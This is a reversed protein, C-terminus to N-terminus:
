ALKMELTLDSCRALEYVRANATLPDKTNLSLTATKQDFSKDVQKRIWYSSLKGNPKEFAEIAYPIEFGPPNYPFGYKNDEINTTYAKNKIYSIAKMAKVSLWESLLNHNKLTALAYLCFSHYGIEKYGIANHASRRLIPYLLYKLRNSKFHMLHNIKGCRTMSLNGGQLKEQFIDLKETTSQCDKAASAISAAFWLQHNFTHDFDRIEGNPEVSRWAGVNKDFPHLNFLEFARRKYSENSFHRAGELFSEIVWAQGILGNSTDRRNERAKYTAHDRFSTTELYNLCSKAAKEFSSDGSLKAVKIFTIAFHATNRVPTEPDHYPGNHGPLAHGHKEIQPLAKAAIEILLEKGSTIPFPKTSNTM